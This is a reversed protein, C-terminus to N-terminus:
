AEVFAWPAPGGRFCLRGIDVPVPGGAIGALDAPSAGRPLRFSRHLEAATQRLTSGTRHLWGNQRQRGYGGHRREVTVGSGDRRAFVRGGLLSDSATEPRDDHPFLSLGREFKM